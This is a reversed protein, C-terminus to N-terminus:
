PRIFGYTEYTTVGMQGAPSWWVRVESWDNEPSVDVVPENRSIRRHVWNAQSVLISRSDRVRTVVSVHGYPLRGSRRFVLVEGARPTHTRAYRGAAEPWWDAADGSLAVGTEQRAFPACDLPTTATIYSPGPRGSACAALLLVLGLVFLNRPAM